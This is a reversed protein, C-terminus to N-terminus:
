LSLGSFSVLFKLTVKFVSFNNHPLIKNFEKLFFFHILHASAKLITEICTTLTCQLICIEIKKYM